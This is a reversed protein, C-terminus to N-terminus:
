CCNVVLELSIALARDAVSRQRDAFPQLLRAVVWDALEFARVVLYGILPNLEFETNTM